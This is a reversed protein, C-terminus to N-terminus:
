KHQQVRSADAAALRAMAWDLKDRELAPDIAGPGHSPPAKLAATAADADTKAQSADVSEAAVCRDVLVTVNTAGVQLYGKGVAWIRQPNSGDRVRLVGPKLASLFPIHAALVGFEGLVGPATVADALKGLVSGTPTVVAVNLRKGALVDPHDHPGLVDGEYEARPGSV